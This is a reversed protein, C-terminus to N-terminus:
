YLVPDVNQMKTYEQLLFSSEGMHPDRVQCGLKEGMLSVKHFNNGNNDWNRKGKESRADFGLLNQKLYAILSVIYNYGKISM